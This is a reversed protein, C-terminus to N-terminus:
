FRGVIPGFDDWSGIRHWLTPGRSCVEDFHRSSAWFMALILASLLRWQVALGQGEDAMNSGRYAHARGIVGLAFVSPPPAGGQPGEIFYDDDDDDDQALQAGGWFGGVERWM